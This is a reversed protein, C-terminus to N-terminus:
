QLGYVIMRITANGVYTNFHHNNYILEKMQKVAQLKAVRQGVSIVDAEIQHLVYEQQDQKLPSNKVSFQKASLM